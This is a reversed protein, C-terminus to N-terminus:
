AINKQFIIIYNLLYNQIKKKFKYEVYLKNINTEEWIIKLM